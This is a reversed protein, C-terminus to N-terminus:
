EKDDKKRQKKRKFSNLNKKHTHTNLQKKEAGDEVLFGWFIKLIQGYIISYKKHSGLFFIYWLFTIEYM